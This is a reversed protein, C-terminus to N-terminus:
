RPSATEVRERLEDAARRHFGDGPEPRWTREIRRRYEVLTEVTYSIPGMQPRPQVTVRYAVRRAAITPEERGVLNSRERLGTWFLLGRDRVDAVKVTMVLDEQLAREIRALLDTYSATAISRVPHGFRPDDDSPVSSDGRAGKVLVVARRIAITNRNECVLLFERTDQLIARRSGASAVRGFGSLYAAPFTDPLTWSVTVTGGSEVETTDVSLTPEQQELRVSSHFGASEVGAVLLCVIARLRSM